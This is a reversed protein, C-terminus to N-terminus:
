GFKGILTPVDMGRDHVLADFPAETLVYGTVIFFCNLSVIAMKISQIFTFKIYIFYIIQSSIKGEVTM